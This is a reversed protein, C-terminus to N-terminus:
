RAGASAKPLILLFTPILGTHTGFVQDTNIAHGFQRVDVATIASKQSKRVRDTEGNLDFLRTSASFAASRCWSITSRCLTRHVSSKSESATTTYDVSSLM